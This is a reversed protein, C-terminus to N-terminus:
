ILKVELKLDVGTRTKVASRVHRILGIVDSACAKDSNIIFNAHKASVEAGGIRYGKLGCSDILKGASIGKRPNKFICGASKANLPQSMKKYALLEMAEKRIDASKKQELVFEASLVINPGINSARYRFRLDKKLITRIKGDKGMVKIQSIRDGINQKYGANMWVAGGVTGPIGVLGELGSLREACCFNVLRGVPVGAGCIVRNGKRSINTFAQSCLKVVIGHYGEDSPVLNSGAGIVLVNIGAKRASVVIKKLDHIDKPELWVFAPGGVGFTTHRSLPENYKARGNIKIDLCGTM